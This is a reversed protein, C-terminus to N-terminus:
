KKPKPTPKAAASAAARAAARRARADVQAQAQGRVETVLLHVREFPQAGLAHLASATAEGIGSSAGVLWVRLGRWDTITPNMPSFLSFGRTAARSAPAPTDVFARPTNM